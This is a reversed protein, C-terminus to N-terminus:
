AYKLHDPLTKLELKPAQVISPLLKTNSIPLKVNTNDYRMNKWEEMFEVIELLEGDLKFDAIIENVINNDFNISM